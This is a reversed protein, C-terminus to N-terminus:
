RLTEHDSYVKFTRGLLHHRWHRLAEKLAYLDRESTSDAVKKSPLRNAMYDVPRYGNGDDQQLVAGIGYQSADTTVVFPLSPDAIKLVPYNILAKKLAQFSKACEEDWYWSPSKQIKRLPAAITTFNKVFRRYYNALGL